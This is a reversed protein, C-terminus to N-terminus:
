VSRTWTSGRFGQYAPLLNGGDSVLDGDDDYVETGPAREIHGTDILRVYSANSLGVDALDFPDGGSVSLDLPDVMDAFDGDGNPDCNAYTPTVGAFGIFNEPVTDPLGQPGTPGEAVFDFPFRKWTQGDASVEVLATDTYANLPDGGWYLVNEFVVFDPGPGDVIERAMKVTIRGGEGLSLLEKQSAQSAYDGKGAPPGLINDPQEDEGFGALAGFDVDIIQLIFNEDRCSAPVTDGGPEVSITVDFGGGNDAYDDDNVILHLTGNAAGVGDYSAGVFFPTGAEGVRGILAGRPLTPATCGVGCSDGTGDPGNPDSDDSM